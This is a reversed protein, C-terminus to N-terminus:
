WSVMSRDTTQNNRQRELFIPPKAYNITLDINKDKSLAWAISHERGGSGLLLINYM